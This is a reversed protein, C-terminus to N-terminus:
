FLLAPVRLDPSLLNRASSSANRRFLDFARNENDIIQRLWTPPANQWVPDQLLKKTETAPLLFYNAQAPLDAPQHFYRVDPELYYWFPRYSDEQVWLQAGAPMMSRIDVAVDRSRHPNASDIRPMILTAFIMVGLATISGSLIAQAALRLSQAPPSLPRTSNAVAFLWIGTALVGELCIWFLLERDGRALFPAAAVGISVITLLLLNFRRWVSALWSPTSSGDKVTLARGLLLCPVVILPYIYRPSGNPLLIMLIATAVMGWRAGRFLALERSHGPRSAGALAAVTEKRWLLPLLLTWPLFNKFTQPGNLL